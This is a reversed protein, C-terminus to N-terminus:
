LKTGRGAGGAATAPGALAELGLARARRTAERRLREARDPRGQVREVDALALTAEIAAEFRSAAEAQGRLAELAAVAGRDGRLGAIRSGLTTVELRTGLSPKEGALQRAQEVEARAQTTDGVALLARALVLRAECQEDDDEAKVATAAAARAREAAEPADGADLALTAARTDLGALSADDGLAARLTRAAGYYDRAASARARVRELDGLATLVNAEGAKDGIERKLALAERLNKEVAPLDARQRDLTAINFLADAAGSRDAVARFTTLAENYSARAAQPNGLLASVHALNNLSEAEGKRDGIARRLDLAERHTRAAGGLDGRAELLAGVNSLTSALGRRNDVERYTALVGDYMTRAGDLDGQQYLVIALNNLARAEGRRDGIERFAALAADYDAKATKLDGRQWAVIGLTNTAAAAGGRDGAAAFLERAAACAREARDPEGLSRAAQCLIVQARAVLLRAGLEQAGAAAREASAVAARFSSLAENAEAEALDIRPDEGVPGPLRRLAGLTALADKAEGAATEANALRLGYDANDPFFRFLARYIDAAQGWEGSAERLRGEISLRLERDLPASLDFANQAESRARADYGLAAWAASLASRVLPQEPALEVARALLKQAAVAESLRLKALGEAYLRAAERDAPYAAALAGPTKGGGNVALAQRLEGGVAAVLAFLDAESGNRSTTHVIEGSVADQLKLDLRLSGGGPAGLAVFSGLVVLDTGLTRRVRALTDPALTEFDRVELDGLGRSVTEAPIVRLAGGTGLETGLMEPLAVALWASDARGTLNKFGLVAIGRRAMAAPVAAVPTARQRWVRVGAAVLALAALVIALMPLVRVRREARGALSRAAEGPSAFRDRPSIQLCRDITRRWSEPLSALAASDGGADHGMRPPTGTVMERLVVGLAYIDGAPSASAGRLQEPAMYAPTGALEVSTAGSPTAAGAVPEGREALGFDTIVARAGGAGELLMINGSKLDGHAIGAAHAAALGAMVQLAVPLAADPALRGDRRLREALTEGALLEMALFTVPAAPGSADGGAPRHQFLDFVRCVNPHTVKRGLAIERRFRALAGADQAIAARVTKLAVREGALELDEAEWVEGMGGQALFRVIRFRGALVQGPALPAAPIAADDAAANPRTTPDPPVGTPPLPTM